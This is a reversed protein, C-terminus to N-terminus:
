NEKKRIYYCNQGEKPRVFLTVLGFWIKKMGSFSEGCSLEIKTDPLVIITVTDSRFVEDWISFDHPGASMKFTITEGSKISGANCMGSKYAGSTGPNVFLGNKRWHYDVMLRVRQSSNPFLAHVDVQGYGSFGPRKRTWIYKYYEETNSWSRPAEYNENKEVENGWCM